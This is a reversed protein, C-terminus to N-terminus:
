EGFETTLINQVQCRLLPIENAAADWLIQWDLEFYAHVIRNRTALIKRWPVEPYRERLNVSLRNM